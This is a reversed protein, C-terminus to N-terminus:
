EVPKTQAEQEWAQDQLQQKRYINASLYVSFEYLIIMPVAVVIASIADPPTIMTSIVVLILYAFRRIKRLLKPNLLRIKTLFMVVIPLEFVLAIPLIINFMFGFYQAIGYTESLQLSKAISTTFLFAMQFVIFYGFALGLLFMFFAFPVYMLSAKQEVERLGPKLFSWLQYLTFPLTILLGTVLAFNMYMKLPDWPSFANWNIGNAPPVTKLLTILPNTTFLGIAMGVILVVVIWIIRKRLETLHEVLTM